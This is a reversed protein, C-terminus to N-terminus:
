SNIIAIVENIKDRLVNLSGNGFSEEIPLVVPCAAVPAEEVVAEAKKAKRPKRATKKM